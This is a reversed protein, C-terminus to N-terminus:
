VHLHLAVPVNALQLPNVQSGSLLDIRIFDGSFQSFSSLHDSPQLLQKQM